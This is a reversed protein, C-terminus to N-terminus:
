VGYVGERATTTPRQSSAPLFDVPASITEAGPTEAAPITFWFTSGRGAKSEIWIRGGWREVAKKCISLGIGTGPYEQPTHLRQFVTFVRDQHQAEIGIGKDRVAFVWERDNWKASVQIQPAEAGRFKISNSILNRLVQGILSPHAMVIPLPDCTITAGSEQFAAQLGDIEGKLLVDCDVTVLEKIGLGVKSYTLLDDILTGMRRTANTVRDLYDKAEDDLQGQYKQALLGSFGGITRLPERLDHSAASAVQELDANSRALEAAHSALAVEAKEREAIERALLNKQDEEQRFLHFMSVVSGTLVMAYSVQKLLHAVNFELDHMSASVAMFMTQGTYGVILSLVLWHDFDNTKWSGKYLYGALALLFIAAPIFEEPRRIITNAYDTQPLPLFAFFLLSGIALAGVSAYISRESIADSEGFKGERLWSLWSLFLLTALYWRSAIWSWETRTEAVSPFSSIFFSYTLLTHYTDLLATGIFGAGIFLLTHTKRAHYRAMAMVGVMLALLAAVTEMLTHLQSGGQWSVQRLLFYALFLGVLLAVYIAIRKRTTIELAHDVGTTTGPDTLNMSTTLEAM